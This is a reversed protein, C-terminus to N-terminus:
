RASDAYRKAAFIADLADLYASRLEQKQVFSDGYELYSEGLAFRSWKPLGRGNPDGPRSGKAGITPSTGSPPPRRFRIRLSPRCTPM